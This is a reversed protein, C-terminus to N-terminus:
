RVPRTFCGRWRVKRVTVGMGQRGSWRGFIANDSGAVLRIGENDRNM